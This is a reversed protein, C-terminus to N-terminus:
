DGPVASALRVKPGSLRGSPCPKVFEEFRLIMERQVGISAADLPTYLRSRAPSVRCLQRDIQRYQDRSSQALWDFRQPNQMILQASISCVMFLLSSNASLIPSLIVNRFLSGFREHKSFEEFLSDLASQDAPEIISFDRPSGFPNGALRRRRGARRNNKEFGRRADIIKGPITSEM